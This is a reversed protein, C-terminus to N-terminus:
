TLSHMHVNVHGMYSLVGHSVHVGVSVCSQVHTTYPITHTCLFGHVPWDQVFLRKGADGRKFWRMNHHAPCAVLHSAGTDLIILHSCRPTTVITRKYRAAAPERRGPVGTGHAERAM